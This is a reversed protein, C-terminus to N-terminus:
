CTTAFGELLNKDYVFIVYLDFDRRTVPTGYQALVDAPTGYMPRQKELLVFRADHTAPDYMDTHTQWCMGVLRGPASLTPVVTVRRSTGVTINNSVWYSGLGYQLGRSELWDAAEQGEVPEARPPAYAVLSVLLVALVAATLARIAQGTREARRGRLWRATTRGALVAAMPLVPAVERTALLDIPLTSVIEAAIDAVIAVALIADLRDATGRLMAVVTLLLAAIALVLGPVRVAQLATEVWPSQVGPRTVGFLIGVMRTVMQTRDPWQEIPSLQIPPKPARFGDLREILWLAAHSAVISALGAAALRADTGRFSRARIARYVGVAVLPAAGVFTILPDGMAGWALVAAVAFPLWARDRARAVLLWAILLPVASGTHNPSSLLTQYGVGPAPVLLIAVAIAAALWGSQGAVLGNRAAPWGLRATAPRGSRGARWGRGAPRDRRTTPGGDATDDPTDDTRHVPTDDARDTPTGDDPTGDPTDDARDTPTDIAQGAPATPTSRDWALWAALLVALTWSLAAAIHIQDTTVGTVLQILGYQVLETPYFSVDSLTWGRLLVNGHFLDWAQLANSAGDSNVTVACAMRLYALFLGIAAAAVLLPPWARRLRM